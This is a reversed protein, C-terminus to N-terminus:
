IATPQITTGQERGEVLVDMYHYRVNTVRICVSVVTQVMPEGFISVFMNVLANFHYLVQMVIGCM